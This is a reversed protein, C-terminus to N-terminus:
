NKKTESSKGFENNVWEKTSQKHEINEKKGICDKATSKERYAEDESLAAYTNSM